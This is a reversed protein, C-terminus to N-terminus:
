GQPPQGEEALCAYSALFANRGNGCAEVLISFKGPAQLDGAKLLEIRKNGM